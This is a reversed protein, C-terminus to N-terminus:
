GVRRAPSFNVKRQAGKGVEIRQARYVAVIGRARLGGADPREDILERLQVLSRVGDVGLPHEWLPWTFTRGPGDWGATALRRGAPATPFLALARYALLNAMWMTRASEDSPDRDLLAYRRDEIPDWRMSLKEDRYDWPRFLVRSVGDINVRGVLQRVTDLFYQQSSGRPIFCFPTPDIADSDAQRCADTGFAALLDLPGRGTLRAATALADAHARYEEATFDIGRGLALEPRPVAERLADLWIRRKQEYERELPRIEREIAETRETGRLRRARIEAQKKKIARKADEMEKQAAARRAEADPVVTAGRLADAVAQALDDQDKADVGELVPVWRYGPKWGLKPEGVQAEHLSVLTGLAALFGLPNTGDLGVLEFRRGM